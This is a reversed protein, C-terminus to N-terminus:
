PRREAWIDGAGPTVAEVLSWAQEAPLDLVEYHRKGAATAAVVTAVGARRQFFSQRVTWAVIGDAQVCDRDRGLSGSQTVLWGPLVAHGLGRSRDVALATALLGCGALVLWYPWGIPVGAGAAVLMAAGLGAVPALARTLRRRRAIPGHGTLEARFQAASGLLHTMAREVEARPAQPLLRPRRVRGTMIAELQAGGVARLLLPLNVTTGRLRALELTSQRTTLLGSRIHLTRGNDVVRLGYWTLLYQVCSLLAPVTLVLVVGLAILAVVGLRTAREVVGSGAILQWGDFQAILGAVPAVWAIGTFSFPAYRVWEPRWHAFETEPPPAPATSGPEPAAPGRALLAERVRPATTAALANLRFEDEKRTAQGTGVHLVALGLLRHLPSAEIDVSRVRTRPVSLLRRRLLGTRLQVHVPGIRYSTTFWRTVALGVVVALGILGWLHNGTNSGVVVSAILVPALKAAETVPHVLLMRADLRQWPLDPEDVPGNM